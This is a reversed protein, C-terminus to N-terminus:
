SLCIAHLIVLGHRKRSLCTLQRRPMYMKEQWFISQHCTRDVDFGDGPLGYITDNTPYIEEVSDTDIGNARSDTKKKMTLIISQYTQLMEATFVM